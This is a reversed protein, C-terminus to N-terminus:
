RRASKRYESPSMGVGKTFQRIFYSDYRYGCASGIEAVSLNTHTLMEEAIGLRYKTLYQLTTNGTLEKFRRNLTTRNTCFLRCLLDLSIDKQYNTEIYELVLEIGDRESMTHGLDDLLYLIQLLYRSTRCSWFVDSQALLESGILNLWEAVRFYANGRIPYIGSQAGDRMLFYSMMNRDHEEGVETFDNKKLAEFSLAPNLFRPHFAFSRATFNGGFLTFKDYPSLCLLCPAVATQAANNLCFSLKGNSILVITMRDPHPLTTMAEQFVFELPLVRDRYKDKQPM